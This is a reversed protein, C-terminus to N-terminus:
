PLAGPEDDLALLFAVLATVDDGGPADEIFYSHGVGEIGLDAASMKRDTGPVALVPAVNGALVKKRESRLVLAQLSLAADARYHSDPAAERYALIPGTGHVLDRRALHSKLDRAPPGNPMATVAVGGDHLYPASGWVYRLTVTKYGVRRLGPLELPGGHVAKGTTADYTPALFRQLLRSFEARAPQTELEELPHILNDTFFPGRHCEACGASRFVRHGREVLPQAGALFPARNAPPDLSDLMLSVAQSVVEDANLGYKKVWERVVPTSRIQPPTRVRVGGYGLVAARHRADGGFSEPSRNRGTKRNQEHNRVDDPISGPLGPVLLLSDRDLLGPVGDSKGLIDNRLRAAASPDHIVAPSFAVQLEAFEAASFEHYLGRAAFGLRALTGARDKCLSVLETPDLAITWVGNNRDDANVFNGDFNFPHNGRTYLSPLQIAHFLGDPTDDAFGRPQMLMGRVVERVITEPATRYHEKVWRGFARADTATRGGLSGSFVSFVALPNKSLAILWGLKLDQNGIPWAHEPRYPSGPTPEHSWASRLDAKGDWDVDLSFHCTACTLGLRVKGPPADGAGLARPELLYPLAADAPAAPVPVLGIPWAAGAEVDLGTHVREPVPIGHLSTNKPFALVLDSTLGGGNGQFLNGPSGDLADVARVFYPLVPESCRTARGSITCPVEVSGGLLGLVDTITRENGFTTERFWREGLARAERYTAEDIRQDGIRRQPAPARTKLADFDGWDTTKPSCAALALWLLPGLRRFRQM